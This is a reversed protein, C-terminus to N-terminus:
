ELFKSKVALTPMMCMDAKGFLSYRNRALLRYFYDRFFRPLVKFARFLYWFGSLNKTIELAADTRYYCEDNKILLFTDFGVNKVQYKAILAQASKSQMPTFIFVNEKDRKIIFNVSSNCLNCVGDFIIIHHTSM